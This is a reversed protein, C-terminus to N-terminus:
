SQRKSKANSKSQNAYMPLESLGTITGEVEDTSYGEQKLMRRIEDLPKYTLVPIDTHKLEGLEILMEIWNVWASTPTTSYPLHTYNGITPNDM